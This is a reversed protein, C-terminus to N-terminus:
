PHSTDFPALPLTFFFTSGEGEVSRVDIQGGQALVIQRVISLGIGIGSFRRTTSGDVQYFSDFVRPIAEAPIGIGQDQVEIYMMSNEPWARLTVFGGDPSFKIANDLLHYLAREVLGPDAKVPPLDSPLKSEIGIRPAKSELAPIINQCLLRLDFAQLDLSREDVSQITVIDFILQGLAETKKAIISLGDRQQESLSGVEEELLLELHGKILTLPTRLEHSVNQIFLAKREDMEKLDSYAMELRAAHAQIDQYLQSNEIAIAAQRAIGTALTIERKGAPRSTQSYAAAILGAVRDQVVLPVILSSEDGLLHRMEEPATERVYTRTLLAPERAETARDILPIEAPRLLVDQYREAWSADLGSQARPVFATRREDWSAVFCHDCGVLQHTIEAVTKLLEDLDTLSSIAQSVKLLAAQVQAQERQRSQLLARELIGGVQHAIISILHEDQRGFPEDGRKDGAVLLGSRNEDIAIRCSLLRRVPLQEFLRGHTQRMSDASFDNFVLPEPAQIVRYMPDNVNISFVLQPIIEQPIGFGPPQCELVGDKYIFFACLEADLLHAV